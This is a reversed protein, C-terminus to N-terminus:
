QAVLRRAGRRALHPRARELIAEATLGYKARLDEVKGHEIHEDPM